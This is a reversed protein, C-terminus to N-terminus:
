QYISSSRALINEIIILETFIKEFGGGEL